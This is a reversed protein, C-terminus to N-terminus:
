SIYDILIIAIVVFHNCTFEFMQCCDNCNVVNIAILNCDIIATSQKVLSIITGPTTYGLATEGDQTNEVMCTGRQLVCLVLVHSLWKATHDFIKM